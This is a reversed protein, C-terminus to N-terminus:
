KVVEFSDLFTIVESDSSRMPLNSKVTAVLLRDNLLIMKSYMRRKALPIEVIVIRTPRGGDNVAENKEVQGGGVSNIFGRSMVELIKEPALVKVSEALFTTRILVYTIDGVSKTWTDAALGGVQRSVSASLVEDKVPQGGPFHINVEGLPDNFKEWGAPLKPAPKAIPANKAVNIIHPSLVPAKSRQPGLGSNGALNESEQTQIYGLGLLGACGLFVFGGIGILILPLNSKKKPPKNQTRPLEDDEYRASKRKVPLEDDDVPIADRVARAALPKARLPAVTQSEVVDFGEADAADPVAILTQCKPCKLNKGAARDAVPLRASCSGCQVVIPM